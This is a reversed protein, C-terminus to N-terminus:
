CSSKGIATSLGICNLMKHVHIDMFCSGINKLTRAVKVDSGIDCPAKEDIQILKQLYDLRDVRKHMNMFRNSINNLM